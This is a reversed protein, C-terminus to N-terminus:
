LSRCLVAVLMERCDSINSVKVLKDGLNLCAFRDGFERGFMKVKLEITNALSPFKCICIFWKRKWSQSYPQLQGDSVSLRYVFFTFWGKICTLVIRCIYSIDARFVSSYDSFLHYVLNCDFAFKFFVGQFGSFNLSFTWTYVSTLECYCTNHLYMYLSLGSLRATAFSVYIWVTTGEKLM